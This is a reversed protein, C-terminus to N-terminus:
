SKDKFPSTAKSRTDFNIKPYVIWFCNSSPQSHKQDEWQWPEFNLDNKTRRPWRSITSEQFEIHESLSAKRPKECKWGKLMSPLSKMVSAGCSGWGIRFKCCPFPFKEFLIKEERFIRTAASYSFEEVNFPTTSTWRQSLGPFGKEASALLQSRQRWIHLWSCSYSLSPFDKQIKRREEGYMNIVESENRILHPIRRRRGNLLLFIFYFSSCSSHVYCTVIRHCGKRRM